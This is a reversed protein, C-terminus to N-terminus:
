KVSELVILSDRYIPEDIFGYQSMFGNIQEKSSHEFAEKIYRAKEIEEEKTSFVKNVIAVQKPGLTAKYRFGMSNEKQCWAEFIELNHYEQYMFSFPIINALHSDILFKSLIYEISPNNLTLISQTLGLDSLLDLIGLYAVEVGVFSSLDKFAEKTEVSIHLPKACLLKIKDIEKQNRIKAVRLADFNLDKLFEIEEKGGRDLPNTRIVIYNNDERERLFDGINALAEGKKEVAIGDELNLTIMQTTEKLKKLHHSNLPNIMMNSHSIMKLM